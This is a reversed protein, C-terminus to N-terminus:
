KKELIRVLTIAFSRAAKPGNATVIDGSQVVDQNIYNAGKEKLYDAKSAFVTADKGKLLGANAIITPAVCIAGIVKGQSFAKKALDIYNKNEYTKYEENGIGGVFVVADYDDLDVNKIDEDVTVKNGLVGTAESVSDSAIDVLAGAKEFIDIPELLEEDRFKSPPIVMLIQKNTLDM